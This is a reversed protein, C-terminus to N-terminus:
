QISQGNEWDAEPSVFSLKEKEGSAMLIMGQSIIGRIKRPALNALLSVKKGIIEEPNYALAIGSVVTRQEFGLDLTLKLLKDTKAVKEAELITATRIDMKTFDDFNIESKIAEFKSTDVTSAQSKELKDIQEQITKDDIRSFLHSAKSLQQGAPILSEGLALEMMMENWEGKGTIIEKNLLKSIKDSSFPLYAHIAVRIAEVYQIALHMVAKVREEDTKITKWPENFQLLQNGKSSIEMIKKMGGRFDYAQIAERVRDLDDHLDIMESDMFGQDEAGDAGTFVQDEHYEPILGEYFKHCLVVVRNIFNALNNVLENNNADQFSKWTFESDKLEPMNKIMSYRLEDEMGPMDELYEHVWIAWNKSTSIKRGELNMFQNAPVNVPLNYDGHAKLISPFIICHFVINDKGIFHVLASEENQWYTKWDKGEKEAWAKTASIYGIPADLWVYLKKGESGAIQKPVDVGWDLDRTMARPNLGGDIWSKCQGIVHNKWQEAFHHEKGDLTGDEIFSKLWAEDKNLPLYWHTTSKLEPKSQTLMSVPNILETPALSSGCNECQDGYAEEYACKPCTGKIYRDALFQNAEKDFYQETTKEEFVGKNYLNTFFEQSTEHHLADSTRHYIDFSIGMKKFTDKFLSHYKDVIEQPTKGEKIARMTIAAGHEDSGCIFAVDKDMLRMFRAFVDASLYAGALHGIHLPGNAYPLASTILFRNYVSM